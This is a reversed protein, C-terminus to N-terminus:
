DIRRRSHQTMVYPQVVARLSPAAAAMITAAGPSQSAARKLPNPGLYAEESSTSCPPSPPRPFRVLAGVWPAPSPSAPPDVPVPPASVSRVPLPSPSRRGVFSAGDFNQSRLFNRVDLAANSTFTPPQVDHLPPSLSLPPRPPSRFPRPPSLMKRCGLIGFPSWLSSPLRALNCCWPSPLWWPTVASRLPPVLALLPDTLTSPISGVAPPLPECGPARHVYATSPISSIM